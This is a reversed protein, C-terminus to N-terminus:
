SISTIEVRRNLERGQVTTNNALPQAEGRWRVIFQSAPLREVEILYKLAMLARRKSLDINSAASGQSDTHGEIVIKERPFQRIIKATDKLLKLARPTLGHSGTGFAGGSLNLSM